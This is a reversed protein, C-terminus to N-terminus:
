HANTFDGFNLRYRFPSDPNIKTDPLLQIQASPHLNHHCSVVIIQEAYDLIFGQWQELTAIIPIFPEDGEKTRQWKPEEVKGNVIVFNRIKLVGSKSKPDNKHEAANRWKLIEGIQTEGFQLTTAIPSNAGYRSVAWATAAAKDNNPWLAKADLPFQDTHFFTALVKAVSHFCHKASFLFQEAHGEIGIAWPLAAVGNRREAIFREISQAVSEKAAEVHQGCHVVVQACEMICESLKENRGLLGPQLELFQMMTRAFAPHSAGYHAIKQFVFRGKNM